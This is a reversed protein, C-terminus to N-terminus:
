VGNEWNFEDGRVGMGGLRDRGTEIFSVMM